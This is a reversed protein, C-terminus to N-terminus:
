VPGSTWSGISGNSPEWLRTNGTNPNIRSYTFPVEFIGSLETEDSHQNGVGWLDPSPIAKITDLYAIKIETDLIEAAFALDPIDPRDKIAKAKIRADFRNALAFALQYVEGKSLFEIPNSDVEGDGGKQYFRLFRDEDENGTGHRIGGGTVRNYARGLTARLCSRISGEITFDEALREKIEDLDYGADELSGAVEEMLRTFCDGFHGVVLECGLGKAVARARETQSVSTSMNTHVLTVNEPGLAEVLLGAVVASDIGGSLDLEARPIGADRHAKRIAEVREEILDIPKLVPM